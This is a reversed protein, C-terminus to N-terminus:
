GDIKKELDRVTKQLRSIQRSMAALTAQLKQPNVVDALAQREAELEERAKIAELQRAAHAANNRDMRPATVLGKGEEGRVQPRLNKAAGSIPISQQPAFDRVESNSVTVGPNNRAELAMAETVGEPLRPATTNNNSM